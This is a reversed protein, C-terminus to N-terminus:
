MGSVDMFKQKGIGSTSSLSRTLSTGNLTHIKLFVGPDILDSVANSQMNIMIAMGVRRVTRRRWWLCWYM